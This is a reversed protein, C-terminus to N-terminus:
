PNRYRGSGCSAARRFAFSRSASCRGPAILLQLELRRHGAVPSRIRKSPASIAARGTWERAPSPNPCWWRRAGAGSGPVPSTIASAEKSFGLPEAPRVHHRPNMVVRLFATVQQLPRQGPIEGHWRPIERPGSSSKRFRRQQFNSWARCTRGGSRKNMPLTGVTGAGFQLHRVAV